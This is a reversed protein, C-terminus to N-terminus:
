GVAAQADARQCAHAVNRSVDLHPPAKWHDGLRQQKGGGALQAVHRGDAAVDQLARATGVEAVAVIQRAVLAPRTRAARGPVAEIAVMRNEAPRLGANGGMGGVHRHRKRCQVGVDDRAPAAALPRDREAIEVAKGAVRRLAVRRELATVQDDSDLHRRLFCPPCRMVQLNAVPLGILESQDGRRGRDRGVALADARRSQCQTAHSVLGPPQCRGLRCQAARRQVIDLRQLRRDRRGEGICPREGVVAELDFQGPTDAQARQLDCSCM